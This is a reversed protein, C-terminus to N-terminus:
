HIWHDGCSADAPISLKHYFKASAKGMIDVITNSVLSEMEKPCEVDIEDHVFVCFLVKGFYDHEVVWKFLDAAAQKLVIASGGQIPYNLVNKNFWDGCESMHKRVKQAVEDKTGKHFLNYDEWFQRDFTDDVAKWSAWEPWYVRHGTMPNIVLYGHERVFKAAKKKFAMMGPMEKQVNAVNQMVIDKDLGLKKATETGNGGYGLEFEFYKANQRLDPRLAKVETVDIDKLEEPYCMKAYLSHTDINHEFADLLKRENWVDAQVRSEEASYDCSVFVNGETATFCARTIKGEEGRAPLNQLNVFRVEDPKLGKYKALDADVKGKSNEDDGGGSSMRGTVTGIQKFETHLRGTIPNILNLHGQGYSSITKSKGKYDFYLELFEDNIGKQSSLTKEDVSEREKKTRKDRVTTNFGLEKVLPIVQKPSDWDISCEPTFDPNPDFLSPQTFTTVFKTNLETHSVVFANLKELSEKLAREDNEMKARWKEEDLHVGCWELYAIAPVFRNEVIFANLCSRSQAVQMQAKRIDQLPVVDHAAYIIGQPTLGKSAIQKQFSKDLQEGTYRYYVSGLTMLVRGPKYGLYLTQECVMTDYINLPHIGYNYLFQLDFKLNHGILYSHEIVYKYEKPDISNCDVVIETHEGTDFHKYGFQMSTLKCIHPNLGTTEVDFQVVPWHIILDLSEEVSLKEVGDIASVDIDNSVLYIM